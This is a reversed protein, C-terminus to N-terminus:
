QSGAMAQHRERIIQYDLEISYVSHVEDSGGLTHEGLPSSCDSSSDEDADDRATLPAAPVREDRSEPPEQAGEATQGAESAPVADCALFDALHASGAVAEATAWAPAGRQLAADVAARLEERPVHVAAVEDLVRHVCELVRDRAGHEEAGAGMEEALLRLPVPRLVGVVGECLTEVYKANNAAAIQKAPERDQHDLEDFPYSPDVPPNVEKLCLDFFRRISTELTPAAVMSWDGADAQSPHVLVRAGLVRLYVEYDQDSPALAEREARALEEVEQLLAAPDSIPLAALEMLRAVPGPQVDAYVLATDRAAPLEALQLLALFRLSLVSCYKGRAPQITANRTIYAETLRAVNKWENLSFSLELDRLDQDVSRVPKSLYDDVEKFYTNFEAQIQDFLKLDPFLKDVAMDSLGDGLLARTLDARVQKAFNNMLRLLKVRYLQVEAIGVFNELLLLEVVEDARADKSWFPNYKHAV